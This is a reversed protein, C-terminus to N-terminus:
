NNDNIDLSQHTIFELIKDSIIVTMEADSMREERCEAIINQKIPQFAELCCKTIKHKILLIIVAKSLYRAHNLYGTVTSRNRGFVETLLFIIDNDKIDTYDRSIRDGGPTFELLKKNNAYFKDYADRCIQINRIYTIVKNLKNIYM